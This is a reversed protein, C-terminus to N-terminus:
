RRRLAGHRVSTKSLTDHWARKEKSFAAWLLGLGAPLYSLLKAANRGLSRALTIRRGDPGVVQLGLAAKGLTGQLPSAEMATCYLVWLLFASDRARNREVLFQLRLDLNTPDARYAAWAEGLGFLFYFLAFVVLWLPLIDLTYAGARRWFGAASGGVLDADYATRREATVLTEYARELEAFREAAGADGRKAEAQYRGGLELCAAEIQERTAAPTLGIVEYHTRAEPAAM